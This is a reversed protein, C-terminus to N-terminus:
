SSPIVLFHAHIFLGGQTHTHTHTHTHTCVCLTFKWQENEAAVQSTLLYFMLVGVASFSMYQTNTLTTTMSMLVNLGVKNLRKVKLRKGRVTFLLGCGVTKILRLTTKFLM